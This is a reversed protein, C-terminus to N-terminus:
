KNFIQTDLRLGKVTKTRHVRFDFDRVISAMNIVTTIAPTPVKLYEGMDEWLCLGNVDENFYRHDATKPALIGAFGPAASYGHDYTEDAMYGQTLGLEPDSIIAVNVAAGIAIRERDVAKIIRGVGKTVGDRYFEWTEENEVRALNSLMVAPHIVPNANQLSTKVISDASEMNEFISHLLSFVQETASSPLAAIYYGGKLRNPIRVKAPGSIRAAYPLTSTEAVIITDDAADYGLANKFELSGFCSGPCIVYIQGPHVYPRCADAFPIIANGPAVIFILAAGDIVKEMDIGPYAETLKKNIYEDRRIMQAHDNVQSEYRTSFVINFNKDVIVIYDVSSLMLDSCKLM